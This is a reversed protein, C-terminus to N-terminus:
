YDCFKVQFAKYEAVRQSTTPYLAALITACAAGVIGLFLPLKIMKNM